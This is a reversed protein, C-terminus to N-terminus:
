KLRKSPTPPMRQHSYSGELKQGNDPIPSRVKDGSPVLM